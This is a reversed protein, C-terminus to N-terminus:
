ELHDIRVRQTYCKLPSRRDGERSSGCVSASESGCTQSRPKRMMKSSGPRRALMLSQWGGKPLNVWVRKADANISAITVEPYVRVAYVPRGAMVLGAAAALCALTTLFFLASRM